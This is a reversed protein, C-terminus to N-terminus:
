LWRNRLQESASSTENRADLAAAYEQAEALLRLGREDAPDRRLLVGALAPLSEWTDPLNRRAHAEIDDAIRPLLQSGDLASIFYAVSVASDVDDLDQEAKEYIAEARRAADELDGARRAAYARVISYEFAQAEFLEEPLTEVLRAGEEPDVQLTTVVVYLEAEGLPADEDRARDLLRSQATRLDEIDGLHASLMARAIALPYTPTEFAVTIDAQTRMVQGLFDLPIDAAQLQQAFLPAFSTAFPHILLPSLEDQRQLAFRQFEWFMPFAQRRDGGDTHHYLCLSFQAFGRGTPFRLRDAEDLGARAIAEAEEASSAEFIRNLDTFATYKDTLTFPVVDFDPVDADLSELIADEVIREADEDTIAAPDIGQAPGAPLGAWWREALARRHATAGNRADLRGANREAIPILARGIRDDADRLLRTRAWAAILAYQDPQYLDVDRIARQVISEALEPRRETARILDELPIRADRLRDDEIGAVLAHGEDGRGAQFLMSALRVLHYLHGEEDLDIARLRGEQTEIALPLDVEELVGIAIRVNADDSLSWEPDGVAQWRDYAALTEERDGLESAVVARCLHVDAMSGGQERVQQELLDLIARVTALPVESQGMLETVFGPASRRMGAVNEPHIFDGHRSIIQLLQMFYPISDAPKGGSSLTWFQEYRASAMFHPVELREADRFLDEFAEVRLMSIPMDSITQRRDILERLEGTAGDLDQYEIM